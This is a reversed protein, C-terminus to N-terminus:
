RAVGGMGVAMPASAFGELEQADHDAYTRFWLELMFLSWLQQGYDRVGTRHTQILREVQATRFLGREKAHPGLLLEEMPVALVGRLWQSTPMNFGKKPRFLVEDPVYRRALKKLLVKTDLGQVKHTYPLKAAFEALDVDLLPARAELSHAMTMADMKPLLDDPLYTMADGYLARDVSTAGDAEDWIHQYWADPHRSGLRALFSDTYLDARHSRLARDFVFAGRADTRGAELVQKMGNLVRPRLRDRGHAYAGIPGRLLHPVLRRYRMALAEALPRTYGAFLEDGGDGNLVVTVHRRAFEAILYTPLASSDAFPEGFETILHPIFRWLDPTLVHEYHDTQYQNSVQRAYTREDFRPDDFGMTLTKIPQGSEQAMLATVLSSDVGGSLFAGIPVDSVLRRRIAQRLLRDLEDLAENESIDLPSGFSLYWYREKKFSGHQIVGYHGPLLKHTGAFISSEGPVALYTLYDDIAADNVDPTRDLCCLLANLTSAFVLKGNTLSYYLPKKGFPDRAIYLAALRHDWLGFAFMGRIRQLLGPMGWHLYGAILVETDTQTQFRYVSQLEQRLALYNYIEGNFTVIVQCTPDSMPQRGNSSLDLVALRRHGLAVQGDRWVGADDPGRKVMTELAHEIRYVDVGM